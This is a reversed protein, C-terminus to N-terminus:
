EHVLKVMVYPKSFFERSYEQTKEYTMADIRQPLERYDMDAGILEFRLLEEARDELNEFFKKKFHYKWLNKADEFRKKSFNGEKLVDFLKILKDELKRAKHFESTLEFYFYCIDEFINYLNTNISYSLGSKERFEQNLLACEGRDLINDILELYERVLLDAHVPKFGVFLHNLELGKSNIISTEKKFRPLVISPKNVEKYVLSGLNKSIVDALKKEDFNGVVSVVINNPVYWKQKFSFITDQSLEGVSDYRGIKPNELRTGKFLKEQVKDDGFISPDELQSKIENLILEKETDFEGPLIEYTQFDNKVTDFVVDLENESAAITLYVFEYKIEANLSVGHKDVLASRTNTEKRNERKWMLHELFHAAGEEEPLEYASGVKIGINIEIRETWPVKESVLVLGNDFVRRYIPEFQM